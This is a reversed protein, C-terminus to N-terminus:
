AYFYENKRKNFKFALLQFSYWFTPIEVFYQLINIIAQICLGKLLLAKERKQFTWNTRKAWGTPAIPSKDGHYPVQPTLSVM